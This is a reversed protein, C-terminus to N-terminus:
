KGIQLRLIRNMLGTHTTQVSVFPVGVTKRCKTHTGPHQSLQGFRQGEPVSVILQHLKSTTIPRPVNYEILVFPGFSRSKHGRESM